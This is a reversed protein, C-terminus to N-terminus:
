GTYGFAAINGSGTLRSILKIPEVIDEIFCKLTSLKALHNAGPIIKLHIYGKFNGKYRLIRTIRNLREMTADPTGLVGSTLFLGFVECRNYYDLFTNVTEEESLRYVRQGHTRQKEALYIM